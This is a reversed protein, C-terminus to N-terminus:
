IRIVSNIKHNIGDKGNAVPFHTRMLKGDDMYDYLNELWNVSSFSLGPQFSDM